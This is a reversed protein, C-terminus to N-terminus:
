ALGDLQRGLDKRAIGYMHVYLLNFMLVASGLRPAKMARKLANSVTFVRKTMATYSPIFRELPIIKPSYLMEQAWSFRFADHDDPNRLLRGEAALRDFVVTGPIPRLLNIGPVDIGTEEIFEELMAPMDLTDGDLGYIFSGYVCIGAERINGICAAQRSAPNHFKQHAHNSQDALSEIGILLAGCGSRSFAELLKPKEGLSTTAQGVWSINFPILETFLKEAYLEDANVTDDLFFFIRKDEKLFSEVEKLVSGISRHRLRHGNMVHVNCFDCNYPCGRTTQVVNTTFYSSIDLASKSVPRDIGLDPFTEVRYEPKLQGALLDRQVTEWIDDAEGIVLADGHERCREPFVTVYPGGLLVKIGKTRLFRALDFAPKVAGTQ